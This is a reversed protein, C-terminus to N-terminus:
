LRGMWFGPLRRLHAVAVIWITGEHELFVLSYPFTRLFTRRIARDAVGPVPSGDFGPESGLTAVVAEVEDLLAEGLGTREAEYWAIAAALDEAAEPGYVIRRM